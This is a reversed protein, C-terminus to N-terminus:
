RHTPPKVCEFNVADDTSGMGKYKAQQPYPCLPRTREVKDDKIRSAIIRKPARGQEVWSMLATLMDHDADVSPADGRFAQGFNEPGAGRLCHDMGPAMFLRITDSSKRGLKRTAREYFQITLGPPVTPDMWGHYAILKGGHKQFGSLDPDLFELYPMAKRAAGVDRELSFTRVDWKPDQYTWDGFLTGAIGIQRVSPSYRAGVPFGPDIQPQDKVQLPAYAARVTQVQAASLCSEDGQTTACQLSAPDFSCSAPNEVVGDRVGDQADCANTVAATVASWQADTLRQTPDKEQALATWLMRTSLPLMGVGGAGSMIGGYDNPYRQALALGQMGGGSCGMFYAQKAQRKYYRDILTKATVALLHHARFGFNEIRDPHGLGWNAETRKHGTDTSASAFGRSVGRSLDQYNIFGADGGNGVGLYRGNWVSTPPLWLEFAIEKEIIGEVRCFSSRVAVPQNGTTFNPPSQWVPQPQIATAAVIRVDPLQTKAFDDCNTPEAQATQVAAIVCVAVLQTTALLSRTMM